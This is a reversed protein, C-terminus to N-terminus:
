PTSHLQFKLNQLTHLSPHHCHSLAHGYSYTASVLNSSLIMSTSLATTSHPWFTLFIMQISIQIRLVQSLSHGLSRYIVVPLLSLLQCPKIAPVEFSSHELTFPSNEPLPESWRWIYYIIDYIHYTYTYTIWHPFFIPVVQLAFRTEPSPWINTVILLPLSSWSISPYVKGRVGERELGIWNM